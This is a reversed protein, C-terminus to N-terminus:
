LSFDTRNDALKQIIDEAERKRISLNHETAIKLSEGIIEKAKQLDKELAYYRALNNLAGTEWVRVAYDNMDGTRIMALGEQVLEFGQQKDGLLYKVTGIHCKLRGKEPDPAPSISLSKEFYPLAEQPKNDMLLADAYSSLAISQAHPDIQEQHQELVSIAEKAFAITLNRYIQASDKRSLIKYILSQGGLCHILGSYDQKDILTILSETYEKSSDGFKEAERLENAKSLKQEDQPNM